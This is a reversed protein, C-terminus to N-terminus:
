LVKSVDSGLKKSRGILVLYKRPIRQAKLSLNPSSLFGLKHVICYQTRLREVICADVPLSSLVYQILWDVVLEEGWVGQCQPIIIMMNVGNRGLIKVLM